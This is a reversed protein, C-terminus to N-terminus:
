IYIRDPKRQCNQCPTEIGNYFKDDRDFGTGGCAYCKTALEISTEIKLLIKYKCSYCFDKSNGFYGYTEDVKEGCLDCTIITQAPIIKKM